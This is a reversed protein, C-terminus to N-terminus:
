RLRVRLAYFRNVQQPSENDDSALLVRLGGGPAHGTVAMAEINDLLPNTQKGPHRAGLDPCEGLDALLTKRLLRESGTLRGIGAVNQAGRPDALYLRVTNGKEQDFGRELVLLRGDGTAAIESVGPGMPGLDKDLPYAWQASLGGTGDWTQMRVLPRGRVDKGDGALQGEMSAILTGRRGGRQATLGEFTQNQQGRGAPAVRLMGPVPLRRTLTGDVNYRRVSPETESTVLRSGDPRVVLGESDLPAGKEDALPVAGTVRDGQLSYLVSRDSLAALQGGADEAVASFGGVPRGQFEAKDFADSYGGIHVRPSCPGGERGNVPGAADATGPACALLALV